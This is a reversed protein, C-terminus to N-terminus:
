REYGEVMAIAANVACCAGSHFKVMPNGIGVGCWCEGNNLLRVAALLADRQDELQDCRSKWSGDAVRRANQEHERGLVYETAVAAKLRENEALLRTVQPSHHSCLDTPTDYSCGCVGHPSLSKVKADLAEVTANSQALEVLLADRQTAAESHLDCLEVHYCDNNHGVPKSTWTDAHEELCHRLVKCQGCTKDAMM